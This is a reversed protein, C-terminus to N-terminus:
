IFKEIFVRPVSYEEKVIKIKWKKNTYESQISSTISKLLWKGVIEYKIKKGVFEILSLFSLLDFKFENCDNGSGIQVYNLNKFLKLINLHLLNLRDYNDGYEIYYKFIDGRRRLRYQKTPHLDSFLFPLSVNDKKYIHNYISYMDITINTKNLLYLHFCNLIYQDINDHDHNILRQITLVHKKIVINQSTSVASLVSDLIWLSYFFMEYKTNTEVIRISEIRLPDVDENGVILRENEESYRSIWNCNFLRQDIGDLNDNNLSMIIGNRTAFNLAVEVEKTTSTPARLYIAFKGVTLICSLGCHFPGKEDDFYANDGWVNVAEVLGKGFHGFKQHRKKIEEMSEYENKERFTASFKRQLDTTDCYLIICLVHSLSMPISKLDYRSYQSSIKKKIKSTEEYQQAKILHKNWEQYDMFGSQILIEDKLSEYIPLIYLSSKTYGRFKHSTYEDDKWHPWYGFIYGM